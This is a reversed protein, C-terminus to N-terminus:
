LLFANGNTTTECMVYKVEIGHREPPLYGKTKTVICLFTLKDVNNQGQVYLSGNPHLKYNSKVRGTSTAVGQWTGATAKQRWTTKGLNNPNTRHKADCDLLLDEGKCVQKKTSTLKGPFSDLNFTRSYLLKYKVILM